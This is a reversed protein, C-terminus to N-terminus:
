DVRPSSLSDSRASLAVALLMIIVGLWTTESVSERLVIHSLFIAVPLELAALIATMVGGLLPASMYTLIMPLASGVIGALTGYVLAPAALSIGSTHWPRYALVVVVAAVVTSFLSRQWINVSPLARSQGYLTLAYGLGAVLGLGIGVLSIRRPGWPHAALLTGLLIALIAIWQTMKPTRREFVWVMVPLMWTFQFLFIITLSAPLHRLAQYYALATAGAATGVWGMVLWDRTSPPNQPRSFSMPLFILIAIPYQFITLWVVSVGRETAVKVLPTLVAYAAAATGMMTLALARRM